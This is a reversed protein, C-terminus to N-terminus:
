RRCSAATQVARLFSPLTRNKTVPQVCTLRRRERRVSAVHCRYTLPRRFKMWTSLTIGDLAIVHSRRTFSDLKQQFNDPLIQCMTTRARMSLQKRCVFRSCWSPGGIFDYIQMKHAMTKAKLRLQVTSLGEVKLKYGCDAKRSKKMQRLSDAAKIWSRVMKEDINFQRGAARNGNKTSYEVATLKFHATYSKRSKVPPM